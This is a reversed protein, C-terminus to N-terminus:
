EKIIKYTSIDGESDDCMVLYIGPLFDELNIIAQQNKPINVTTKVKGTMNYISINFNKSTSSSQIYLNSKVPNPYISLQHSETLKIDHIGTGINFIYPKFIISDSFLFYDSNNQGLGIWANERNNIRHLENFQSNEYILSNKYANDVKAVFSYSSYGWNGTITGSDISGCFVLGHSLTEFVDEIKNAQIKISDSAILNGQTSLIEYRIFNFRVQKSTFGVEPHLLIIQGTSLCLALPRNKMFWDYYKFWVINGSLDIKAIGKQSNGSSECFAIYGDNCKTIAKATFFSSTTIDLNITKHEKNKGLSDWLNYELNNLTDTSLTIINGPLSNADVLVYNYDFSKSFNTRWLIKGLSDAKALINIFTGGLQAMALLIIEKKEAITDFSAIEAHEWYVSDNFGSQYMNVGAFNYKSFAATNLGNAGAIHIGDGSIMILYSKAIPNKIMWKQARSISQNYFLLTVLLLIKGCIRCSTMQNFIKTLVFNINILQYIITVYSFLMLM